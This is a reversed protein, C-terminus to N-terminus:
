RSCGTQGKSRADLVLAKDARIIGGRENAIEEHIPASQDEVACTWRPGECPRANRSCLLDEAEM